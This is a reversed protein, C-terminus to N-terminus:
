SVAARDVSSRPSQRLWATRAAEHDLWSYGATPAEEGTPPTDNENDFRCGHAASLIRIAAEVEQDLDVRDGNGAEAFDTPEGRELSPVFGRAPPATTRPTTNSAPKKGRSSTFRPRRGASFTDQRNSFGSLPTSPAITVCSGSKSFTGKRIGPLRIRVSSSELAAYKARPSGVVMM